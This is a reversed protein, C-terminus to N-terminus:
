SPPSSADTSSSSRRSRTRTSMAKDSFTSTTIFVGKRKGALAGFFGQIDPRSIQNKWRKAQVYVKELGLRDLSIIGDIGGDGSKGVHELDARSTGYGMAHLLDLVLTEFFTPTGQLIQELLDRATSERIEALASDLREEPSQAELAIKTSATVSGTITSHGVHVVETHVGESLKQDRPPNALENIEEKSFGHPRSAAFELGAETIKWFGRKASSSYGPRKLRDHAWGTRNRVVTQRNSPILEARDSESLKFHDALADTAQTMTVGDPHAVLYRLLPEIFQDFTPVAM